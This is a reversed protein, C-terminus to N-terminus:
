AHHTTQDELETSELKEKKSKEWGTQERNCAQLKVQKKPSDRLHEQNEQKLSQETASRDIRLQVGHPEKFAEHCSLVRM